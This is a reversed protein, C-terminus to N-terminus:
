SLLSWHMQKHTSWFYKVWWPFFLLSNAKEKYFPDIDLSWIYFIIYSKSRAMKSIKRDILWPFFDISAKSKYAVSLFVSVWIWHVYLSTEFILGIKSVEASIYIYTHKHTHICACLKNNVFVSIIFIKIWNIWVM